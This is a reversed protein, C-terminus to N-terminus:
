YLYHISKFDIKESNDFWNIAQLSFMSGWSNIRSNKKWGLLSKKNEEFLGGNVHLDTSQAQFTLLFNMLKPVITKYKSSNEVSDFLIMLRILQAIPYSAKSKYKNGFWLLISGDHEINEVCWDLAKECADLYKQDNTVFYGYLLGELAYCQTHLNTVTSNLHLSFSGDNRQFLYFSDCIKKGIEFYETSNSIKYYRFFPICTKINLCGKQKYWVQESGQFSQKEPNFYPLITGDNQISGNNIWDLLKLGFDLFKKNKTLEYCKFMATSCIGTDFVFSLNQTPQNNEIGMVIGNFKEFIQILWNSSAEALKTYKEQKNISYLFYMTDVFYGTIEPYLFGFSNHKIDYFSHVGGIDSSNTSSTVIGSNLLWNELQIFSEKL